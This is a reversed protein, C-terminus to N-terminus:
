RVDDNHAGTPREFRDLWPSDRDVHPDRKPKLMWDSVPILVAILVAAVLLTLLDRADM